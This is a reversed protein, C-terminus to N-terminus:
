AGMLKKFYLKRNSTTECPKRTVTLNQNYTIIALLCFNISDRM